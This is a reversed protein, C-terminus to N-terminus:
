FASKWFLTLYGMYDRQYYLSINKKLWIDMCKSSLIREQSARQGDLWVKGALPQWGVLGAM